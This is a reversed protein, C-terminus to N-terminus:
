GVPAEPTSANPPARRDLWQAFLVMAQWTRDDVLSALEMRDGTIQGWFEELLREHLGNKLPRLHPPLGLLVDPSTRSAM